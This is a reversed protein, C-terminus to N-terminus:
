RQCYGFERIKSHSRHKSAQLTKKAFVHLERRDMLKGAVFAMTGWGVASWLRQDGYAEQQTPIFEDGVLERGL